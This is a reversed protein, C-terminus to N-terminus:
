NQTNIVLKIKFGEENNTVNIKDLVSKLVLQNPLTLHQLGSLRISTTATTYPNMVCNNKAENFEKRYYQVQETPDNM